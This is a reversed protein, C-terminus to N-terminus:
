ASRSSDVQEWWDPLEGEEGLWEITGATRTADSRTCFSWLKQTARKYRHILEDLEFADLEAADHRALGDRVREILKALEAEHYAGVAMRFARREAKSPMRPVSEDSGVPPVTSGPM